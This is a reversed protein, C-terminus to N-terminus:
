YVLFQIPIKQTQFHLLPWTKSELITPKIAPLRVSHFPSQILGGMKMSSTRARRLICHGLYPYTQRCPLPLATQRKRLSPSVGNRIGNDGTIAEASDSRQGYILSNMPLFGSHAPRSDSLFRRDYVTWLSTQPLSAPTTCLNWLDRQSAARWTKDADPSTNHAM